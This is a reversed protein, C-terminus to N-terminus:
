RRVQLVVAVSVTQSRDIERAKQSHKAKEVWSYHAELLTEAKKAEIEGRLALELKSVFAPPSAYTASYDGIAVSAGAVAVPELAVPVLVLVM